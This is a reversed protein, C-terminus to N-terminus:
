PCTGDPQRPRRARLERPLLLDYLLRHVPTAVGAAAGLRVVAGVQADLETRRGAEFDRQLSSTAGPAMADLFGLTRAVADAPLGVGRGAAVAVVEHMGREALARVEPLARWEGITARTLAGVASVPAIFLLKTWLAVQIAPPIEARVGAGTFADRLRELRASPRDDLEGFRVFPDVGEHRVRGPAVLYSVIGCLGAAVPGAGLPGALVAHAEVGNLLPVVVTAPGILPALAPAADALQWAKVAVLVADVPGIARPDDTAVVRPLVIEGSMGSVRLGSARLTALQAGRAVFSVEHGAAQLRAGFYGGVGGAGVVAIRM